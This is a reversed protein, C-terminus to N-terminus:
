EAIVRITHYGRAGDPAPRSRDSTQAEGTGDTARVQLVHAGAPMDVSARWQVWSATSLPVSTQADHWTVGEDASVEVRSISRTPAWAVGAVEVPGPTVRAGNPPLDIRSQTLIPGLKSWGLPIWYPDFAELTTLEIETIWKTASVYGFLGPIILRAPFGHAPPLPEGNMAVVLMAESGAGDLHATPFGSTWGDFSRGVLQTAGSQVGAMDLISRLRVGTWKANGVLHGGVENSVCAITVYQETLPMALIDAYTLTVENNVLGHIRLKWTDANVRPVDLRTDIRYFDANPVVSPTLGAIGFETGATPPALTAGPLPLPASPAGSPLQSGLYRGVIALVGGAAIFIGALAVFSRRDVARAGPSTVSSASAASAGLPRWAGSLWGFMGSGAVVAAGASLISPLFGSLPDKLLLVLAVVGFLGFGAYAIRIDRRGALGLLAGVLLGGSAVGAELVLKDFTGFLQVMLDKAGPPQLSIVFAGIAVIISSGGVLAAVIEGFGIAVAAAAIGSAIWSLRSGM